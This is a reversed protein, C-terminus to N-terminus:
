DEDESLGLAKLDEHSLDPSVWEEEWGPLTALERFEDFAGHRTGPEWVGYNEDDEPYITLNEPPGDALVIKDGDVHKIIAWVHVDEGAKCDRCRALFM